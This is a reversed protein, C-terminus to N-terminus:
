DTWQWRPLGRSIFCCRARGRVAAGTGPLVDVSLDAAHTIHISEFHTWMAPTPNTLRGHVFTDSALLFSFDDPVFPLPIPFLPLLAARLVIVGLGAGAVAGGKRHAVQAFCREVGEFFGAGIRPWVFSLTVAITTLVFEAGLLFHNPRVDSPLVM